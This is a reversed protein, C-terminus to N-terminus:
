LSQVVSPSPQPRTSISGAPSLGRRRRQGPAPRRRACLVAALLGAGLFIGSTAPEPVAIGFEGIAFGGATLPVTITISGLPVSPDTSYFGFFRADEFGTIKVVGSSADGCTAEFNYTSSSSEYPQAYFYFALTGPPLHITVTGQSEYYVDGTYSHSWTTWGESPTRGVRRHQLLSGFLISGGTPAPVTGVDDWAARNDADFPIMTYEVTGNGLTTTPAATGPSGDFVFAAGHGVHGAGCILLIWLLIQQHLPAM